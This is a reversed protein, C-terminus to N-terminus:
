GGWATRMAGLMFEANTAAAKGDFVASGTVVIDAGAGALHAINDRTVGGDVAVLIERGTSAVMERVKAVRSYTVPSLVQGGWGPDVALLVILDVEDLLPATLWELATGPNLALGRVLGRGPGSVHEISGLHQLLRHIHVASELQVTIVDAGAAAYEELRHLPEHMMLHVDKLLPTRLGKVYPAGVTLAPCFCGDMVDVHVMGVGAEELLALEDGLHMLDATLTGVSITPCLSRVRQLTAVSVPRTGPEGPSSSGTESRGNGTVDV